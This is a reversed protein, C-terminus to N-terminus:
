DSPKSEESVAAVLQFEAPPKNPQHAILRDPPALVLTVPMSPAKEFRLADIEANGAAVKVRYFERDGARSTITGNLDILLESHHAEDLAEKRARQRESPEVFMREVFELLAASVVLRYRGVFDAFRVTM